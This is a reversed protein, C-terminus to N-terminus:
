LKPVSHAHIFRYFFLSFKPYIQNREFVLKSYQAQKSVAMNTHSFSNINLFSSLYSSVMLEKNGVLQCDKKSSKSKTHFPKNTCLQGGVNPSVKRRKERKGYYIMYNM